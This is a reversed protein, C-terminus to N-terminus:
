QGSFRVIELWRNTLKEQPAATLYYKNLWLQQWSKQEGLTAESLLFRYGTENSLAIRQMDESTIFWDMFAAAEAERRCDDFVGVCYLNVPSGSRPYVIYAPFNSELYKFVYSQRTIAIDAQGMAVMRIPSFPFNAYKVVLRNLNLLTALGDTEGRASAFGGLFNRTSNTNSLNEMTLRPEPYRLLDDWDKIANQGRNRAFEQNVLFVTPDYFAGYWYKKTQQFEAPLLAAARCDLAKLKRDLYLGNLTRQEAVVVDPKVGDETLETIVQVKIKDQYKKSFAEAIALSFRPELESYLILTKAKTQVPKDQQACGQLVLSVLLVTVILFRYMIHSYKM